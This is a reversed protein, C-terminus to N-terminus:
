PVPQLNCSRYAICQGVVMPRNAIPRCFGTLSQLSPGIQSRAKIPQGEPMCDMYAISLRAIRYLMLPPFAPLRHDNAGMLSPLVWNPTSELPGIESRAKIPLGEPM